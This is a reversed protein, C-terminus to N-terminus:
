ESFQKIFQVVTAGSNKAALVENTKNWAICKIAIDNM